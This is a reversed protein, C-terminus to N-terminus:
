HCDGLQKSQAPIKANVLIWLLFLVHPKMQTSAAPKLQQPMPRIYPLGNTFLTGWVQNPSISRCRRTAFGRSFIVVPCTPVQHNSGARAMRGNDSFSILSRRYVKEIVSRINCPWDGVLLGLRISVGPGPLLVILRDTPKKPESDNAMTHLSPNTHAGGMSRRSM